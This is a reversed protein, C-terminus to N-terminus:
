LAPRARSRTTSPSGRPAPVARRMAPARSPLPRSTAAARREAAARRPRRDRAPGRRGHSGRRKPPAPDQALLRDLFSEMPGHLIGSVRAAAPRQSFRKQLHDAATTWLTKSMQPIRRTVGGGTLAFEPMQPFSAKLPGQRQGPPRSGPSWGARREDRGAPAGSSRRLVQFVGCEASMPIAPPIDLCSTPALPKHVVTRAQSRPFLFNDVSEM